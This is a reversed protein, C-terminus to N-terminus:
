IWLSISRASPIICQRRSPRLFVGRLLWGASGAEVVVALLNLGKKVNLKLKHNNPSYQGGRNGLQSLDLLLEGNFYVKSFWDAGYGFDVVRDKDSQFENFIIARDGEEFSQDAFWNLWLHAGGVDLTSARKFFYPLVNKGSDTGTLAVPISKYNGPEKVKIFIIWHDSLPLPERVIEEAKAVSFLMMVAICFVTFTCRM